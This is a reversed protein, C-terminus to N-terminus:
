HDGMGVKQCGAPLTTRPVLEVRCWASCAACSKHGTRLFLPFGVSCGHLGKLLVLGCDEFLNGGGSGSTVSLM